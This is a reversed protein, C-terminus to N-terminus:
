CFKLLKVNQLKKLKHDTHIWDKIFIEGQLSEHAKGERLMLHVIETAQKTLKVERHLLDRSGWAVREM